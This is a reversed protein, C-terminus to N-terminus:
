AMPFITRTYFITGPHLGISLSADQFYQTGYIAELLRIPNWEKGALSGPANTPAWQTIQTANRHLKPQGDTPNATTAWAIPTPQWM